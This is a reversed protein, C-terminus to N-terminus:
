YPSRCEKFYDRKMEIYGHVTLDLFSKEADTEPTYDTCSNVLLEENARTVIKDLDEIIMDAIENAFSPPHPTSIKEKKERIKIASTRNDGFFHEIVDSLLIMDIEDMPLTTNGRM